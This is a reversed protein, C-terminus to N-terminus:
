ILHTLAWKGEEPVEQPIASSDILYANNGIPVVQFILLRRTHKNIQISASVSVIPILLGYSNESGYTNGLCIQQNKSM